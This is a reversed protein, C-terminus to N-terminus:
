YVKKKKNLVFLGLAALMLFGGVLKFLGTGMGGTEPLLGQKKNVITTELEFSGEMAQIYKSSTTISNINGLEDYKTTIAFDIDKIKSYGNPAKTERLIYNINDDLGIIEFKGNKGSVITESATLDESLVYINTGDDLTTSKFKLAVGERYISFEAGELPNSNEDTKLGNIKFTYDKVVKNPEKETSNENYPNNSYELYVKNENSSGAIIANENLKASYYIYLTDGLKFSGKKLAEMVNISIDIVKAGESQGEHKHSPMEIKYDSGEVLKKPVDSDKDGVYISIDNNFTLGKDLTDHLIYTYNTYGTINTPIKAKLRYEVNDGIKNDGVVGWQGNDNNLIEKYVTPKSAKLNIVLNSSATGMGAAAVVQGTTGQDLIIYYGPSLNGIITKQLSGSTTIVGNESDKVIKKEDIYEKIESAILQINENNDNFYNNAFNNLEDSNGLQVGEENAKNRFFEEFRSDVTYKIDQGNPDIILDMVKYAFYKENELKIGTGEIDNEITITNKGKVDADIPVAVILLLAMAVFLSIIKKM